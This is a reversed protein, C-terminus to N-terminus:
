ANVALRAFWAITRESIHSHTHKEEKERETARQIYGRIWREAEEGGKRLM